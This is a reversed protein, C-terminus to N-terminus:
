RIEVGTYYAKLIEKYNQGAASRARAGMQCM